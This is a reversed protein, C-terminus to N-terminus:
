ADWQMGECRKVDCRIAECRQTDSRLEEPVSARYTACVQAVCGSSVAAVKVHSCMLVVFRTTLLCCYIYVSFICVFMHVYIHVYMCVHLPAVFSIAPALRSSPNCIVFLCVLSKPSCCKRSFFPAYLLAAACLVWICVYACLHCMNSMSMHAGSGRRRPACNCM